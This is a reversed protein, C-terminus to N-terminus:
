LGKDTPKLYVKFVQDVKEALGYHELQDLVPKINGREIDVKRCLESLSTECVDWKRDRFEDKYFDNLEVGDLNLGEIMGYLDPHFYAQERMILYLAKARPYLKSWVSSEIICTHFIFFDGKWKDLIDKRIFGVKYLYFHRKGETALQRRLLYTETEEGNENQTTFRYNNEVLDKIGKIVTNVSVGAMKAIHEQPLQIWTNSAFNARSCIVPYIALAAKSINPFHEVFKPFYFHKEMNINEKSPFEYKKTKDYIKKFDLKQLEKREQEQEQKQKRVDRLVKQKM